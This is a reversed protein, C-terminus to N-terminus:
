NNVTPSEPQEADSDISHVRNVVELIENAIRLQPSNNITHNRYIEIFRRRPAILRRPGFDLPTEELLSIPRTGVYPM